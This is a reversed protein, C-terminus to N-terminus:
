KKFKEELLLVGSGDQMFPQPNHIQTQQPVSEQASTQVPASALSALMMGFLMVNSPKM